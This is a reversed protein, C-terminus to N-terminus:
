KKRENSNGRKAKRYKKCAIIESRFSQKCEHICGICLKNYEIEGKENRYFQLEIERGM